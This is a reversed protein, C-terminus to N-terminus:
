LLIQQFIPIQSSRKCKLEVWEKVAVLELGQHPELELISELQQQFQFRFESDYNESFLDFDLDPGPELGQIMVGSICSCFM